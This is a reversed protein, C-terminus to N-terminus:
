IYILISPNILHTYTYIYINEHNPQYYDIQPLIFCFFLFFPNVTWFACYYSNKKQQDLLIYVINIHCTLIIYMVFSLLTNGNDYLIVLYSKFKFSFNLLNRM